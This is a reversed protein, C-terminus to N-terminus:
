FLKYQLFELVVADQYPQLDYNRCIGISDTVDRICFYGSLNNSDKDYFHVYDDVRRSYCNNEKCFWAILDSVSLM